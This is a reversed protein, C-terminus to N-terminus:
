PDHRPRQPCRSPISFWRRRPGPDCSKTSRRMTESRHLTLRHSLEPPRLPARSVDHSSSVFPMALCADVVVLGMGNLRRRLRCTSSASAHAQAIRMTM